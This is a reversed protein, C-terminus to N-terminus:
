IEFENCISSFRNIGDSHFYIVVARTIIGNRSMNGLTNVANWEADAETEYTRSHIFDDDADFYRVRYEETQPLTEM